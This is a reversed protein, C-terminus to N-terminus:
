FSGVRLLAAIAVGAAMALLANRRIVMVITAAAIATVAVLGGNLAVPVVTAAIVSGPLADLMRRVRRTLPVYSMMWYGAFRTAATAAAMAVIAIVSTLTAEMM